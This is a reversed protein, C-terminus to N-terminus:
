AAHGGSYAQKIDQLEYIATFDDNITEKLVQIEQKSRFGQQHLSQMHNIADLLLTLQKTTIDNHPIAKASSILDTLVVQTDIYSQEFNEYAAAKTGLKHECTILITNVQNQLSQLASVLPPNYPSILEITCSSLLFLLSLLFIGYPARLLTKM